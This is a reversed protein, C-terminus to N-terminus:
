FSNFLHRRHNHKRFEWFIGAAQPVHKKVTATLIIWLKVPQFKATSSIESVISDLICTPLFYHKGVMLTNLVSIWTDYCVQPNKRNDTWVKPTMDVVRVDLPKSVLRKIALIGKQIKRKVSILSSLDESSQHSYDRYGSWFIDFSLHLM